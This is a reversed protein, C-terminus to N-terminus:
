QKKLGNIVPRKNETKDFNNIQKYRRKMHFIGFLTNTREYDEDWIGNDIDRWFIKKNINVDLWFKKSM